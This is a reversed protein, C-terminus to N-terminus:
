PHRKSSPMGKKPVHKKAGQKKRMALSHPSEEASVSSSVKPETSTPPTHTRSSEPIDISVQSLVTPSQQHKVSSGGSKQESSSSRSMEVDLLHDSSFLDGIWEMVSSRGRQSDSGQGAGLATRGSPSFKSIKAAPNHEERDPIRGEESFTSSVSKTVADELMQRSLKSIRREEPSCRSSEKARVKRQTTAAATNTSLDRTQQLALDFFAPPETPKPHKQPAPQEPMDSSFLSVLPM